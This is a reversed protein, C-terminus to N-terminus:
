WVNKFVMACTKASSALNYLTNDRAATSSRSSVSGDALVFCSFRLETAVFNGSGPKGDDIKTDINWAEESKLGPLVEHFGNADEEGFLLVNGYSGEIWFTSSINQTGLVMPYWGVSNSFRSQPINVSLITQRMSYSTSNATGSYKGKILEANALHQWLTFTENATVAASEIMGNGNGNCTAATTLPAASTPPCTAAAGWFLTANNIDGPLARYKDRFTLVATQYTTLETAVSRLEAAKILNQGTLIGGTLLGLIVLVISLEVLSFASKSLPTPCQFTQIM